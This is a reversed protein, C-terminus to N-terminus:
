IKLIVLLMNINTLNTIYKWYQYSLFDLVSLEGDLLVREDIM